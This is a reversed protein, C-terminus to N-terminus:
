EPMFTIKFTLQQVRFDSVLVRVSLVLSAALNLRKIHYFNYCIVSLSVIELLRVIAGKSCVDMCSMSLKM